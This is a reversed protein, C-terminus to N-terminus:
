ASREQEEAGYFQRWFGPEALQPTGSLYFPRTRSPRTHVVQTRQREIRLARRKSIEPPRPETM